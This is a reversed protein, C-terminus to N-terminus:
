FLAVLDRQAFYIFLRFLARASQLLGRRFCADRARFSVLMSRFRRFTLQRTHPM